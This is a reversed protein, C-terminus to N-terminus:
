GRFAASRIIFQHHAGAVWGKPAISAKAHSGYGTSHVLCGNFAGARLNSVINSL